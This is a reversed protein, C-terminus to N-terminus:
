RLTSDRRVYDLDRFYYVRASCQSGMDTADRNYLSARGNMGAVRNNHDVVWRNHADSRANYDAVASPDNNDLRALDRALQTGERAIEGSELDNGRKEQELISLRDRLAQDREVCGRLEGRTMPADRYYAQAAAALPLALVTALFLRKM